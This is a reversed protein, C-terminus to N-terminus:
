DETDQGRFYTWRKHTSYGRSFPTPLISIFRVLCVCSYITQLSRSASRNDASFMRGARTIRCRSIHCRIYLRNRLWYPAIHGSSTARSLVKSCSFASNFRNSASFSNSLSMNPIIAPIISHLLYTSGLGLVPPQTLRMVTRGVFLTWSM